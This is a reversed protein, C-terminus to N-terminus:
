GNNTVNAYNANSYTVAADTGEESWLMGVLFTSVLCFFKEFLSERQNVAFIILHRAHMQRGGKM